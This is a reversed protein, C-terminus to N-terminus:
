EEAHKHCLVNKFFQERLLNLQKSIKAHLFVKLTSNLCVIVEFCFSVCRAVHLCLMYRAFAHLSLLSVEDKADVTKEFQHMARCAKGIHESLTREDDETVLRISILESVTEHLTSFAMVRQLVHEQQTCPQPPDIAVRKCIGALTEHSKQLAVGFVCSPKISKWTEEVPGSDETGKLAEIVSASASNFHDQCKHVIPDCLHAADELVVKLALM